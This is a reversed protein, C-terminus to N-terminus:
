NEPSTLLAFDAVPGFALVVARWKESLGGKESGRERQGRVMVGESACKEECILGHSEDYLSSDGDLLFSDGDHLSILSEGTRGERLELESSKRGERKEGKLRM